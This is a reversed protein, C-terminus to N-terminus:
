GTFHEYGHKGTITCLRDGHYLRIGPEAEIQGIRSLRIGSEAAIDQLGAEQEPSICFCLEYDDGGTLALAYNKEDRHCLLQVGASLPLVQRDLSAGVGSAQLLHELDALLGDSIDICATALGRLAQGIGLRPRPRNLQKVAPVDQPYDEPHQLCHLGLAADGLTGTVYIQDGARAGNRTLAKGAPVYGAVQISITLPGQTTDGGVLQIGYQEALAFLGSAFANLWESNAEPLTLAMTFWVPEAGMAALDSLNVALAKYGIDEATTNLPFHVGAVLTDIAIVLQKDHPVTILAADDGIGLIVEDRTVKQQAFYADIIDFESRPM